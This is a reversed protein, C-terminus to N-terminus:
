INECKYRMLFKQAQNLLYGFKIIKQVYMRFFIFMQNWYLKLQLLGKNQTTSLNARLGLQESTITLLV